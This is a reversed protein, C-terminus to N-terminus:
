GPAVYPGRRRCERLLADVEAPELRLAAGHREEIGANVDPVDPSNWAKRYGRAYDRRPGDPLAAVFEDFAADLAPRPADFSAAIERETRERVDADLEIPAFTRVLLRAEGASALLAAGRTVIGDILIPDVTVVQRRYHRAGRDDYAYDWEAGNRVMRRRLLDVEVIRGGAAGRPVPDIRRRLTLFVVGLIAIGIMAAVFLALPLARRLAFPRPWAIAIADGVRRIAAAEAAALARHADISRRETLGGPLSLEIECRHFRLRGSNNIGSYWPSCDVRAVRAGPVVAGFGFSAAADAAASRTERLSATALALGIGMAILVFACVAM